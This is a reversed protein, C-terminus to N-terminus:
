MTGCPRIFGNCTEGIVRAIYNYELKGDKTLLLVSGELTTSGKSGLLAICSSILGRLLMCTTKDWSRFCLSCRCGNRALSRVLVNRSERVNVNKRQDKGDAPKELEQITPYGAWAEPGGFFFCAGSYFSKLELFHNYLHQNPHLHSPAKPVQSQIPTLAIQNRPM